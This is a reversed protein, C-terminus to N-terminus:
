LSKKMKRQKHTQSNGNYQESLFASETVAQWESINATNCTKRMFPNSLARLINFIKLLIIFLYECYIDFFIHPM